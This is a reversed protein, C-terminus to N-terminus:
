PGSSVTAKETGKQGKGAEKLLMPESFTHAETHEVRQYTTLLLIVVCPWGQLGSPSARYINTSLIFTHFAARSGACGACSSNHRSSFGQSLQLRSRLGPQM